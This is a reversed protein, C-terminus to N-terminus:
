NHYSRKLEPAPFCRVAASQGAEAISIQFGSKFAWTEGEPTVIV